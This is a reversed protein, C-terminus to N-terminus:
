HHCHNLLDHPSESAKENLLFGIPINLVLQYFNGNFHYVLVVHFGSPINTRLAVELNGCWCSDLLIGKAPLSVMSGACQPFTDLYIWFVKQLLNIPCSQVNSNQEFM